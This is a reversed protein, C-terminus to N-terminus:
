TKMVSKSKTKSENKSKSFFSLNLLKDIHEHEILNLIRLSM